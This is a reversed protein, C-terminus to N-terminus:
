TRKKRKGFVDEYSASALKGTAAKHADDMIMEVAPRIKAQTEKFQKLLEQGDYGQAILDALIEGAFEGSSDMSAPRIVLAGDKVVCEAKDGFGLATFFSQPITIQRKSSISVIKRKSQPIGQMTQKAIM